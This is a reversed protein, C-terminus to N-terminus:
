KGDKKRGSMRQVYEIIGLAAEAGSLKSLKEEKSNVEEENAETETPKREEENVEETSKEEKPVCKEKEADWVEGEPCKYEYKEATEEKKVEKPEKETEKSKEEKEGGKWENACEKMSKKGDAMCKKIYDTYASIHEALGEIEETEEKAEEEPKEEGAKEEPKPLLSEKFNELKEDILKVIDEKKFTEKKEEEEAVPSGLNTYPYNKYQFTYRMVAEGEDNTASEAKLFQFGIKEGFKNLTEVPINIDKPMDVTLEESALYFKDKTMKNVEEEKININKDKIMSLSQEFHLIYCSECAPNEVLSIELFEFDKGMVQGKEPVYEMSTAMSVAKFRKKLVDKIARPDTVEAEFLLAKTLEDFKAKTVKGVEKNKYESGQGHEVKLPIGILKEASKEIEELSYLVGNWTGEALAIGTIKVPKESTTAIWSSLSLIHKHKGYNNLNKLQEKTEELELLLEEVIGSKDEELEKENYEIGSLM